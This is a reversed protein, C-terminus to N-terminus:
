PQERRYRTLLLVAVITLVGAGVAIPLLASGADDSSQSGKSGDGPPKVQYEDQASPNSASAPSATMLPGVLALAVLLGAAAAAIARLTKNESRSM